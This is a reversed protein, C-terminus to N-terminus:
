GGALNVRFVEPDLDAPRSRGGRFELSGQSVAASLASIAVIEEAELPAQISRRGGSPPCVVREWGGEIQRDTGKLPTSALSVLNGVQSGPTTRGSSCPFPRM